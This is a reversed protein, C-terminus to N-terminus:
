SQRSIKPMLTKKLIYFTHYDIWRRHQRQRQGLRADHILPQASIQRNRHHRFPRLQCHRHRFSLAWRRPSLHWRALANPAFEKRWPLTVSSPCSLISWTGREWWCPSSSPVCHHWSPSMHQINEYCSRRWNSSGTWVALSQMIGACTVAAIIIYIVDTPPNGPKMGFGLVLIALGIGSIAGLALSGYRSGVYLAGLVTLLQLIMVFDMPILNQFELNRLM